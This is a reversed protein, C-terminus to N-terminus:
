KINLLRGLLDPGSVGCLSQLVVDASRLRSEDGIGACYMGASKAAQVGSSADEFVVCKKPNARLREAALEFIQPDPKTRTIDNGDIIEDFYAQGQLREL